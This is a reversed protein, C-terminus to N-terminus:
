SLCCVFKFDIYYFTAKWNKGVTRDLAVNAHCGQDTRIATVISAGPNGSSNRTHKEVSKIRVTSLFYQTLGNILIIGLGSRNKGVPKPIYELVSNDSQRSFSVFLTRMVIIFLYLM